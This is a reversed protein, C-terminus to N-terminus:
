CDVVVMCKDCLAIKCGQKSRNWTYILRNRYQIATAPVVLERNYVLENEAPIDKDHHLGVQIEKSILTDIKSLVTAPFQPSEFSDIAKLKSSYQFAM